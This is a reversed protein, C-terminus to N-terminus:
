GDKYNEIMSSILDRIDFTGYLILTQSEIRTVERINGNLTQLRKSNRQIIEILEDVRGSLVEYGLPELFV